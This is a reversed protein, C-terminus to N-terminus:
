QKKRYVVFMKYIMWIYSVIAVAWVISIISLFFQSLYAGLLIGLSVLCIKFVTYDMFNFQKAVRMSFDILKKM